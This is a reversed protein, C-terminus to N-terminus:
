LRSQPFPPPNGVGELTHLCPQRPFTLARHLGSGGVVASSVPCLSCARARPSNHGHRFGSAKEGPGALDNCLQNTVKLVWHSAAVGHLQGSGPSCGSSRMTPQPTELLARLVTTTPHSQTVDPGLLCTNNTALSPSSAEGRAPEAELVGWGEGGWPWIDPQQALVQSGWAGQAQSGPRSSAPHVRGRRM